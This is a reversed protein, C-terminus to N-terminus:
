PPLNKHVQLFSTGWRRAYASTFDSFHDLLFLHRLFTRPTTESSVLVGLWNDKQTNFLHLWQYLRKVTIHFHECLKMVSGSCWHYTAIVRLIFFLSHSDYPVIIDPLVAQTHGCSCCILRTVTIESTSPQNDIFDIVKRSYYSHIVLSRQGCVPCIETDPHFSSMFDRFRSASSFKANLIKIFISNKRVMTTTHCIVSGHQESSKEPFRLAKPTHSFSSAKTPTPEKEKKYASIIKDHCALFLYSLHRSQFLTCCLAARM